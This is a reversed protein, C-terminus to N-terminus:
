CQNGIIQWGPQFVDRVPDVHMLSFTEECNSTNWLRATGDESATAIYKGDTSFTSVM